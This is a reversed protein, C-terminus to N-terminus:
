KKYKETREDSIKGGWNLGFGFDYVNRESDVHCKIDFPVDEFQEEVTRMDAPMQLPLLGSPESGGSIVDLLAQDQVGFNVILVEINKEFEAVVTPNSLELSVIVPKNKVAKKTDLIMQLDTVNNAVVTKGKYTRNLVDTERPDGAISPDRAFEATYAGYQLSIPFFGNGGKEVDARDYGAMRGAEPSSIFVLAFDAQEPDESVQYYKKVIELSAPYEWREPIENGMFDSRAPIFRQPIYVTKNKEIPIINEANKLLIISKLQAEYGAKMFEPNGVIEGSEQVNLYPNEFLGVRFMNKLLRIASTEFRIRMFEEGHEDVGMQFAEMVPGSQNNGGFQDCGAMIIRYHKEAETLHEVGWPTRGFSDM